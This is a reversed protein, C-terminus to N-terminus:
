PWRAFPVIQCSEMTLKRDFAIDNGMVLAKVVELLAAIAAQHDALMVMEAFGITLFPPDSWEGRVKYIQVGGASKLPDTM